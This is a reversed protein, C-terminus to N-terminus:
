EKIRVKKLDISEKDNHVRIKMFQRPSKADFEIYVKEGSSGLKEFADMLEFEEFSIIYFISEGGLDIRVELNRPLPRPTNAMEDTLIPPVMNWEGNLYKIVM